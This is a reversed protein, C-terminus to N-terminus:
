RRTLVLNNLVWCSRQSHYSEKSSQKPQWQVPETTNGSAAHVVCYHKGHGEIYCISDDLKVSLMGTLCYWYMARCLKTPMQQGMIALFLVLTVIYLLWLGSAGVCKISKSFRTSWQGIM